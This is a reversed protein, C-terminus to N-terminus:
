FQSPNRWHGHTPGLAPFVGGAPWLSPPFFTPGALQVERGPDLAGNVDGPILWLRVKDDPTLTEDALSESISM